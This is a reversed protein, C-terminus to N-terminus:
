VDDRPTPNGADGIIAALKRRDAERQATGATAGGGPGAHAGNGYGGTILRDFSERQCLFKLDARFTEKTMGRLFSSREVNALAQQWVALMEEVGKPPAAHEFMRAAIKQGYVDFSTDRPVPLGTRQALSQWLAFGERAARRNIGGRDAIGDSAAASAAFIDEQEKTGKNEIHGKAPGTSAGQQGKAPGVPLSESSDSLQYRLYNCLTIVNATNSRQQGRIEDVGLTIMHERYLQKLFVRVTKESWNWVNALYARGGVVQGPQLLQMRGKNVWPREGYAANSILWHWAEFRSASGRSPDVPDVPKCIGVIPHTLMNRHTAYWGPDRLGPDSNHGISNM